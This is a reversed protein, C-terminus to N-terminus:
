FKYGVGIRFLLRRPERYEQNRRLFSYKVDLGYFWHKHNLTVGLQVGGNFRDRGGISYSDRKGETVKSTGSTLDSEVNVDKMVGFLKYNAFVGGSVRLDFPRLPITYGVQLPLELSYVDNFGKVDSISIRHSTRTFLLQPQFYWQESLKVDYLGGLYFGPRAGDFDAKDTCSFSWGLGGTVGWRNQAAVPFVSLVTLVFALVKKKM